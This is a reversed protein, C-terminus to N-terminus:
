TIGQPVKEELKLALLERIQNVIETVTLEVIMRGKELTALTPDGWIRSASYSGSGQPDRTLGM